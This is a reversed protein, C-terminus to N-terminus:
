LTVLGLKQLHDHMTRGKPARFPRQSRRKLHAILRLETFSNIERFAKRPYGYNFYNGWGVLHRSVEGVMRPLPMCSRRRATLERLKDRERALSKESPFVNLYRRKWQKYLSRDFRFTFGLFDLTEGAEELSVVRTKERNIKLDM